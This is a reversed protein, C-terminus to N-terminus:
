TAPNEIRGIFLILGSERHRVIFFFPRDIRFLKPTQEKKPLKGTKRLVLTASAAETGFENLSLRVNHIVDSVIRSESSNTMNSFDADSKFLCGTGMDVLSQVLSEGFFLSFRPISLSIFGSSQEKSFFEENRELITRLKEGQTLEHLTHGSEPVFVELDFHEGVYPIQIWKFGDQGLCAFKGTRHMFPLVLDGVSSHFVYNRTDEPLFPYEWESSFWLASTAILLGQRSVPGQLVEPIMGHTSKSVHSNITQRGSEDMPIETAHAGFTRVTEDLYSQLFSAGQRIWLSNDSEYRFCREENESLGGDRFTMDILPLWEKMADFNEFALTRILDERTQGKAGLAFLGLSLAVSHPSLVINGPCRAVAQYLAVSFRISQTAIPDPVFEDNDWLNFMGLTHIHPGRNM